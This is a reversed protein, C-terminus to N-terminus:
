FYFRFYKSKIKAIFRMKWIIRTIRDAQTAPSAITKTDLLIKRLKRDYVAHFYAERAKLVPLASSEIECRGRTKNLDLPARM